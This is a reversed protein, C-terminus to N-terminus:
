ELYDIWESIKADDYGRNNLEIKVHEKLEYLEKNGKLFTDAYERRKSIKISFNSM